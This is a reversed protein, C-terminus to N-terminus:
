SNISAVRFQQWTLLDTKSNIIGQPINYLFSAWASFTSSPSIICDAFQLLAQDVGISQHGFFYYPLGEFAKLNIAEKTILIFVVDNVGKTEFLHRMCAAYIREEFYHMGEAFFKYDGQRIHVAVIKSRERNERAKALLIKATNLYQSKLRFVEQLKKKQDEEVAEAKFFFGGTVFLIVQSWSEQMKKKLVSLPIPIGHEQEPFLKWIEICPLRLFFKEIKKLRKNNLLQLIIFFFKHWKNRPSYLYAYQFFTLDILRYKEKQALSFFRAFRFLRNGLDGYKETIIICKKM